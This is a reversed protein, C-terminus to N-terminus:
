GNFEYLLIYLVTVLIGGLLLGIVIMKLIHTGPPQPIAKETDLAKLTDQATMLTQINTNMAETQLAKQEALDKDSGLAVTQGILTLQHKKIRQAKGSSIENMRQDLYALAKEVDEQNKGLVRVSVTNSDFNPEVTVLENIYETRDTNFAEKLEEQDTEGGLPILYYPLLSDAPDITSGTSLTEIEEQVVEIHYEASGIWVNQPNLNFYLSEKQYEQQGEIEQTIMDVKNKADTLRVQYLQLNIQFTREEETQKGADHIGKLYFFQYAGFGIACIVAVLLISKWRYLVHFFLDRLSITTKYNKNITM